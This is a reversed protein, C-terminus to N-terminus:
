SIRRRGSAAAVNAHSHPEPGRVVARRSCGPPSRRASRHSRGSRRDGARAPVACASRRTGLGPSPLSLVMASRVGVTTSTRRNSPRGGPAGALRRTTTRQLVAGLALTKAPVVILHEHALAIIPVRPTHKDARASICRAAPDTRAGFPGYASGLERHASAACEPSHRHTQSARITASPPRSRGGKQSRGAPRECGIVSPAAAPAPRRSTAGTASCRCVPQCEARSRSGV